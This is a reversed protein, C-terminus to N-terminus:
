CQKHAERLRKREQETMDKKGAYIEKHWPSVFRAFQRCKSYILKKETITLDKKRLMIETMNEEVYRILTKTGARKSNMRTVYKKPKDGLMREIFWAKKSSTLNKAKLAKVKYGRDMLEYYENPHLKTYFALTMDAFLSDWVNSVHERGHKGIKEAMSDLRRIAEKRACKFQKEKQEADHDKDLIAKWDKQLEKEYKSLRSM